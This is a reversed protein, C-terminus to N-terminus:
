LASSQAPILWVNTQKLLGLLMKHNIIDIIKKLHRKKNIQIKECDGDDGYDWGITQVVSM